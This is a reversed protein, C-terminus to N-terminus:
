LEKAAKTLLEYAQKVAAKADDSKLSDTKSLLEAAISHLKEKDPAMEAAKKAEAAKRDEEKRRREEAAEAEKREREREAQRQREKEAKEKEIRLRENEERIRKQEEDYARKKEEMEAKLKEYEDETTDITLNEYAGLHAYLALEDKRQRFLNEKREAEKREEEAKREAEIKAEYNAKSGALFNAWVDDAMNGLDIQSGDVEYKALENEREAQRAKIKEQEIREYYTEVEKLKDEKEVVAYKLINYVGQIANGARLYEEKQAKRVKDAEIRVKAIDLRLRKAKTCKEPSQEEQMVQEYQGEFEKLMDVMPAFVSEIQKAKSEDLVELEKEITMLENM